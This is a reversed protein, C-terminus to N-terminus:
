NVLVVDSEVLHATENETGTNWDLGLTNNILEQTSESINFVLVELIM